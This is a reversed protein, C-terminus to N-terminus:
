LYPIKGRYKIMLFIFRPLDYTLYFSTKAIVTSFKENKLIMLHRNRFCLCQRTKKSTDSSNGYHYCVADPCFIAKWGKRQARWALDVDEVLFFFREDFYGTKEKIEELMKRNYLACASCAGFIYHPKNYKGNDDFKGKGIDYFRRLWSLYIGCSYITKKDNSLIKPQLGGISEESKEAFRMIKNLFDKKLIIDCDLTLIWRGQAVEIAQNRAKAAGLNQNNEILRVQPYDEKVLSLTNDQSDNDVLIVEFDRYDQNFVSDLCPKIFDESNFTIIVISIEPMM